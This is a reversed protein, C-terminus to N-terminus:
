CPLIEEFTIRSISHNGMKWKMKDLCQLIKTVNRIKSYGYLFNIVGRRDGHCNKLCFKMMELNHIAERCYLLKKMDIYVVECNSWVFNELHNDVATINKAHLTAAYEGLKTYIIGSKNPSKKLEKSITNGPIWETFKYIDCGQKVIKLIKPVLLGAALAEIHVPLSRDLKYKPPVTNGVTNPEWFSNVNVPNKQYVEVKIDYGDGIIHHALCSLRRLSLPNSFHKRIICNIM